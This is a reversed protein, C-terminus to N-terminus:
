WRRIDTTLGLTVAYNPSAKSVGASPVATVILKESLRFGLGAGIEAPAGYGRLLSTNGYASALLYLNSTIRRGGGFGWTVANRLDTAAPKGIAVYGFDGYLWGSTFRKRVTAAGGIDVRGTGLGRSSSATPIKVRTSVVMQVGTLLNDVVRYGASAAVDGLGSASTLQATTTGSPPQLTGTQGGPWGGMMMGGGMRGGQMPVGVSPAGSVSGQMPIWGGDSLTGAGNTLSVYPFFGTFEFRGTEVRLVAPAYIIRTTADGGFTGSAFRFNIGGSARVEQAAADPVGIGPPVILCAFLAATLGIQGPGM